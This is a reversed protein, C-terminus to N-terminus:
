AVKILYHVAWMFNKKGDSLSGLVHKTRVCNRHNLMANKDIIIRKLQKKLCKNYVPISNGGLVKLLLLCKTRFIENKRIVLEYAAKYEDCVKAAKKDKAEQIAIFKNILDMANGKLFGLTRKTVELTDVVDDWDDTIEKADDTKM